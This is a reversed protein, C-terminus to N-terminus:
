IAPPLVEQVAAEISDSKFIAPPAQEGAFRNDDLLCASPRDGAQAQPDVVGARELNV